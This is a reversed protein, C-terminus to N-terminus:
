SVMYLSDIIGTENSHKIMCKVLNDMEERLASDKPFYKYMTNLHHSIQGAFELMEGNAGLLAYACLRTGVVLCRAPSNAWLEDNEKDIAKNHLIEIQAQSLGLKKRFVSLNYEEVHDMLLRIVLIASARGIKNPYGLEEPKSAAATVAFLTACSILAVELDTPKRDMYDEISEIAGQMSEYVYKENGNSPSFEPQDQSGFISKWLSM